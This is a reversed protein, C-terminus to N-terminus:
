SQWQLQVRVVLCEVTPRVMRQALTQTEFEEDSDVEISVVAPKTNAKAGGGSKSGGGAATGSFLKAFLANSDMNISSDSSSSSSSSSGGPRSKAPSLVSLRRQQFSAAQARSWECRSVDVQVKAIAAVNPTVTAM